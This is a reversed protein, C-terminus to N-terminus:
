IVAFFDDKPKKYSVPYINLNSHSRYLYKFIDQNWPMDMWERRRLEFNCNYVYQNWTEFRTQCLKSCSTKYQFYVRGGKLADVFCGTEICSICMYKKKSKKVGPNYEFTRKKDPIYIVKQIGYCFQKLCLDTKMIKCHM